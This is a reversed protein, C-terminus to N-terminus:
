RRLLRALGAAGLLAVVLFVAALVHDGRRVGVVAATGGLVLAVLAQASGPPFGRTPPGGRVGPRV